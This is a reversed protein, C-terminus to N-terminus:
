LTATQDLFTPSAGWYQPLSVAAYDSADMVTNDPLSFVFTLSTTARLKNSSAALSKVSLV